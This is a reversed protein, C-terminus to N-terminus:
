DGLYTPNYTYVVPVWSSYLEQEREGSFFSSKKLFGPLLGPIATYVQLELVQSASAPPNCTGPWDVSFILVRDLFFFFFLFEKLLLVRLQYQSVAKRAM